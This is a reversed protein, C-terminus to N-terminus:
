AAAQAPEIDRILAASVAAVRRGYVALLGSLGFLLWIHPYYLIDIFAGSGFVGVFSVTTGTIAASVFQAENQIRRLVRQKDQQHQGAEDTGLPPADVALPTQVDASERQLALAVALSKRAVAELEKATRRNGRLSVFVLSGVIGLGWLGLDPLLEFYISHTARGSASPFKRLEEATEYRGMLYPTNKMGVGFLTNHPDLFARTALHWYHKRYEATEDKPGNITKMEALYGKPAFPIALLLVFSSVLILMLKKRSRLLFIVAMAVLGLFDGRSFTALIGGFTFISALAYLLKGGAAKGGETLIALPFPLLLLLGCGLDNEDGLFAGPGTGQHTISFLGLFMGVLALTRILKRLAPGSDMFAIIPFVLGCFQTLLDFWTNVSWFDNLVLDDYVFKGIFNRIFEFFLFISLAKVQYPFNSGGGRALWLIGIFWSMLIPMRLPSLAPIIEQPRAYLLIFNLLLLTVLFKKGRFTDVLRYFFETREPPSLSELGKKPQLEEHHSPQGDISPM